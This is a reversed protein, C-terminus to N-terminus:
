RGMREIKDQEEQEQKREDELGEVQSGGRLIKGSATWM